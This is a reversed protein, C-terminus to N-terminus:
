LETWEMSVEEDVTGGAILGRPRCSRVDVDTVERVSPFVLARGEQVAQVHTDHGNRPLDEDGPCRERVVVLHHHRVGVEGGSM